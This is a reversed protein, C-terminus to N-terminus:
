ALFNNYSSVQLITSDKCDINTDLQVNGEEFYHAGVQIKGKIEVFQSGDNFELTWISRWSGNCFNQPSRRAASIIAALGFDAGPGDIDKGSTCYVACVGKPYAECIYKSLEVDLASRFEEIYASPLEEDAAPRLKTCNQKIHDVTAVQATRPDLYNNKDLEGYTTIILDGSRDPLELSVLHAKNYEPFAEAAAAEYVAEDGLLARVDKAVYHIEGAPANSLFWVAIERKQRDSLEEGAGAGDSMQPERRPPPPRAPPAAIDLARLPHSRLLLPFSPWVAPAHSCALLPHHHATVASSSRRVSRVSSVTAKLQNVFLELKIASKHCYLFLLTYVLTGHLKFGLLW